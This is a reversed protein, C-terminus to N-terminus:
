LAVTDARSYSTACSIVQMHGITHTYHMRRIVWLFPFCSMFVMPSAIRAPRTRAPRVIRCTPRRMPAPSDWILLQSRPLTSGPRSATRLYTVAPSIESDTASSGNWEPSAAHPHKFHGYVGESTDADCCDKGFDRATDCFKCAAGQEGCLDHVFFCFAGESFSANLVLGAKLFLVLVVLSLACGLCMGFRHPFVGQRHREGPTRIMGTRANCRSGRLYRTNTTRYRVCALRSECVGSTGTHTHADSSVVGRRIAAVCWVM